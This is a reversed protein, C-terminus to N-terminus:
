AIEVTVLKLRGASGSKVSVAAKGCKFYAAVLAILEENARGDVPPSKLQARWTGDATQELYSIRARPKVKITLYVSSM